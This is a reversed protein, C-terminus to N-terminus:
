VARLGLLGCGSTPAPTPKYPAPTPKYPAPAPKYPAPAPKYTPAQHTTEPYQAEGEYTVEAVFGSDGDVKYTVTQVRGDPLAVRYSGTTSAGDRTEDAAFDSGSYEDAVAYDFAYKATHRRSPSFEPYAPEPKYAPEPQYPDVSLATGVLVLTIVV